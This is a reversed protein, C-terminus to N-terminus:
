LCQAFVALALLGRRLPSSSARLRVGPASEERAASKQAKQASVAGALLATRRLTGEQARNFLVAATSNYRTLFNPTERTGSFRRTLVSPPERRHMRRRPAQPSPARQKVADAANRQLLSNAFGLTFFSEYANNERQRLGACTWRNVRPPADEERGLWEGEEKPPEERQELPPCKRKGRSFCGGPSKAPSNCKSRRAEGHPRERLRSDSTTHTKTSNRGECAARLM